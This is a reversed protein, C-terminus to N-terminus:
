IDDKWRQQYNKEVHNLMSAATAALDYISLM